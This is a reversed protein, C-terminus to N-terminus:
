LGFINVLAFILSGALTLGAAVVIAIKMPTTLRFKKKEPLSREIDKEAESPQASPRHKKNAEKFIEKIEQHNYGAEEFEDVIQDDSKGEKRSEVVFEVNRSDVM